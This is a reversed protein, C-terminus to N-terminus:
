VAKLDLGEWRSSEKEAVYLNAIGPDLTQVMPAVQELGKTEAWLLRAASSCFSRVM